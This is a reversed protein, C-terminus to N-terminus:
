HLFLVHLSIMSTSVKYGNVNIIETCVRLYRRSIGQSCVCPSYFVDWDAGTEGLLHLVFSFCVLEYFFIVQLEGKTLRLGHFDAIALKDNFSEM